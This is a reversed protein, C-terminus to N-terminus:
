VNRDDGLNFSVPLLESFKYTKKLGATNALLIETEADFFEAMVQLCAGCPVTVDETDGVVVLKSFEQEGATVASFIANREACSTLGYSSNEVNCGTFIIGSKSLLVAGVKFNSYPSYANERVKVAEEYLTDDM